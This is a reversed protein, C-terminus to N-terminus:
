VRIPGPVVGGRAPGAHRQVEGAREVAAGRDVAAGARDAGIGVRRHQDTQALAEVRHHDTGARHPDLAIAPDHAVRVLALQPRLQAKGGVRQHHDDAAEIQRPVRREEGVSSPSGGAV